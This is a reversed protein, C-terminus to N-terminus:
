HEYRISAVVIAVIEIRTIGEDPVDARFSQFAPNSSRPVLWREGDQGIVFEKVTTEHEGDERTRQVIVRKGSPIEDRNWYKVCELVTGPPYLQDMSDGEVRLGYRDRLPAIVDPSGTFIQWDNEEMHDADTWVGAAITGKIFLQPGLGPAAPKASAKGYLLWEPQVRFFRAYREARTAPLGRAGNEHQIYTAVPVGMAEAASKATEYGAKKRAQQLRDAPSEMGSSYHMQHHMLCKGVSLANHMIAPM